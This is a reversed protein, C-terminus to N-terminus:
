RKDPLARMTVTAAFTCRPIDLHRPDTNDYPMTTIQVSLYQHPTERFPMARLEGAAACAADMADPWTDAWVDISLYHDHVVIDREYGGIRSVCLCPLAEGLDQPVPPGFCQFGELYTSLDRPVETEVDVPALATM